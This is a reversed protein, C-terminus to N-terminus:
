VERVQLVGSDWADQLQYEGWRPTDVTIVQDTRPYSPWHGSALCDQYIEMARRIKVRGWQRFEPSLEVLTSVFPPEKEQFAFYFLVGAGHDLELTEAGGSYFPDQMNYGFDFCSRAIKDPNASAASKYDILVLEGNPGPKKSIADVMARRWMGFEEDWWVMAQEPEFSGPEFWPGTVDDILLVEAMEQAVAWEDGLLPINGAAYAAAKAAKAEKTRWADSKVIAVDEGKGLVIKHAGHGFDYHNKPPRGGRTQWYRFKRPNELVAKAMSNSISGGKVPDNHYRRATMPYVGPTTILEDM